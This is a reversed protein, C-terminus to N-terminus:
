LNMSTTLFTYGSAAFLLVLLVLGFPLGFVKSDSAGWLGDTDSGGSQPRDGEARVQLPSCHPSNSQMRGWRQPCLRLVRETAGTRTM